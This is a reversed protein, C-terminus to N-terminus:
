REEASQHRGRNVLGAQEPSGKIPHENFDIVQKADVITIGTKELSKEALARLVNKRGVLVIEVGYEEAAKIAGKVVEHPAYDGGAADVAIRMKKM